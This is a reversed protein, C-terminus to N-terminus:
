DTPKTNGRKRQRSGRWLWIFICVEFPASWFYSGLTLPKWMKFSLLFKALSQKQEWVCHWWLVCVLCAWNKRWGEMQELLWFVGDCLMFFHYLFLYHSSVSLFKLPLSVQSFGWLLFVSLSFSFCNSFNQEHQHACTTSSKGLTVARTWHFEVMSVNLGRHRSWTTQM